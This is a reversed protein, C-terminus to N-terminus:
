NYKFLKMDEIGNKNDIDIIKKLKLVNRIKKNNDRIGDTTREGKKWLYQKKRKRLYFCENCTRKCM